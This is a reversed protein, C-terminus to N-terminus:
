QEYSSFVFGKQCIYTIGEINKAFACLELTESYFCPLLSVIQFIQNFYINCFYHMEVKKSLRPVSQGRITFLLWCFTAPFLDLTRISWLVFDELEPGESHCSGTSLTGCM